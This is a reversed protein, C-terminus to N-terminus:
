LMLMGKAYSIPDFIQRIQETRNVPVYIPHSSKLCDLEFSTQHESLVMEDLINWTPQM